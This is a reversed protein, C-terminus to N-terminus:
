ENIITDIEPKEPAIIFSVGNEENHAEVTYGYVSVVRSVISLGLGFQGESGKEYPQFLHLLLEPPIAKGDNYVTLKSKDLTVVISSKAYRLANDLLNEVVVRWPEETGLYSCSTLNTSLEIYPKIVKLSQIVGEVVLKMDVKSPIDEKVLYNIRNLLLLSHVKKELRAAHEIIVDVSKELTDYPYVGDKISEAYSKIIAIPTKLDHSINHIMEEKLTEQNKLETNMRVVANALQGIEDHRSVALPEETGKGLQNIYNEIQKLSHILYAAWLMLIFFLIGAIILIINVVENLLASKFQDIYSHVVFSVISTREDIKTVTYVVKNTKVSSVGDYTTESMNEIYILFETQFAPSLKTASNTIPLINDDEFYIVHIVNPDNNAFLETNSRQYNSIVNTQNRHITTYMQKKAINDINNFIFIMIFVTFFLISLFVLSMLQKTLSMDRFYRLIKRM